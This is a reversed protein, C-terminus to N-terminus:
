KNWVNLKRVADMSKGVYGGAAEMWDISKPDKLLGRYRREFPNRPANLDYTQYHDGYGIKEGALHSVIGHHLNDEDTDRLEDPHSKILYRAIMRANDFTIKSNQPINVVPFSMGNGSRRIAYEGLMVSPDVNRYFSTHAGGIRAAKGTRWTPDIREDGNIKVPKKYVGRRALEYNTPARLAPRGTALAEADIRAADERSTTKVAASKAFDKWTTMMAMEM